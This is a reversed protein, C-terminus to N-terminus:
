RQDDERRDSRIRDDQDPSWGTNEDVASREGGTPQDDAPGEQGTEDGTPGARPEANGPTTGSEGAGGTAPGGGGLGDDPGGDGDDGGDARVAARADPIVDFDPNTDGLVFLAYYRLFTQFPVRVLLTVVFVVVVYMLGLVLAVLGGVGGLGLVFVLPIGVVAFPIGIVVLILLMLFGAAIGIAFGLLVSVVLYVLYEKWAGTLTPWLRRWGAIVGHEEALMVPVVFMNTFGLVLGSALLSALFLPVALLILGIATASGWQGLPWGGLAVGLIALPILVIGALVLWVGVRFLFLRVGRRWHRRVYTWLRVRESSLSEVFVFEMIAGTVAWLIAIAAVFLVVGVLFLLLLPTIDPTVAGLDSGAATGTAGSDPPPETPTGFGGTPVNPFSAGVGTVFLMIVALRFWRARDLPLLFRKTAEFADSVADLASLAM